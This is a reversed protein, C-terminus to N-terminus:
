NFLKSIKLMANKLNKDVTEVNATTAEVTIFQVEKIGLFTLLFGLYPELFNAASLPGEDVYGSAGYSCIVIAKETRVLGEFNEGDYAFTVGIRVIHDIWAKLASPITFNYIPVTLLLIDAKQLEAILTDSVSLTKTLEDTLEDKPTYFGEITKQNIHEIPSRILDRTIVSNMTERRWMQEYYDGLDRSHSGQLRSSSDIRLLKPM